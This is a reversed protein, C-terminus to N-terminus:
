PDNFDCLRFSGKGLECLYACYHCSAQHETVFLQGTYAHPLHLEFHRIHSFAFKRFLREVDDETAIRKQVDFVLM